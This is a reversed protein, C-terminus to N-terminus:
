LITVSHSRVHQNIPPQMRRRGRIHSTTQSAGCKLVTPQVRSKHSARMTGNVAPLTKQTAPPPTNDALKPVTNYQPLPWLLATSDQPYARAANSHSQLRGDTAPTSSGDWAGSLWDRKKTANNAPARIMTRHGETSWRMRQDTMGEILKM